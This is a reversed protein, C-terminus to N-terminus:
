SRFEIDPQNHGISFPFGTYFDLKQCEKQTVEAFQDVLGM